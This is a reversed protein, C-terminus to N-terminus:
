LTITYENSGRNNFNNQLQKTSETAIAKLSKPKKIIFKLHIVDIDLSRNLVRSFMQKFSKALINILKLDNVIKAFFVGDYMNARCSPRLDTESKKDTIEM